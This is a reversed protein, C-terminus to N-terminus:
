KSYTWFYTWPGIKKGAVGGNTALNWTDAKVNRKWFEDNVGNLDEDFNM